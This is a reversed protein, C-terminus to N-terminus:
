SGRLVNGASLSEARGEGLLPLIKTLHNAVVLVVATGSTLACIAMQPFKIPYTENRNLPLSPISSRNLFYQLWGSM